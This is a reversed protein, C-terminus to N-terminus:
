QHNLKGSPLYVAQGAKGSIGLPGRKKNACTVWRSSRERLTLRFAGGGSLRRTLRRLQGLAVGSPPDQLEGCSDVISDIIIYIYIISINYIYIYSIHYIYIYIHYIYIHNWIGLPKAYGRITAVHQCWIIIVRLDWPDAGLWGLWGSAGLGDPLRNFSRLLVM